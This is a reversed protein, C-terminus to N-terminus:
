YLNMVDTKLTKKKIKLKLLLMNVSNRPLSYKKKQRATLWPKLVKFPKGCAEKECTPQVKFYCHTSSPSTIKLKAWKCLAQLASTHLPTHQQLDWALDFDVWINVALKSSVFFINRGSVSMLCVRLLLCPLSDPKWMLCSMKRKHYKSAARPAILCVPIVTQVNRCKELHTIYLSAVIKQDCKWCLTSCEIQM